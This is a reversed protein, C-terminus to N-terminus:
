RPGEKGTKTATPKPLSKRSTTATTLPAARTSAPSAAVITGARRTTENDRKAAAAPGGGGTMRGLFFACVLLLSLVLAGPVLVRPQRWPAACTTRVEPRPASGNRVATAAGSPRGVRMSFDDPVTGMELSKRIAQAYPTLDMQEPRYRQIPSTGAVERDMCSLLVRSHQSLMRYGSSAKPRVAPPLLRELVAFDSASYDEASVFLRRSQAVAREAQSVLSLLRTVSDQNIRRRPMPASFELPAINGGGNTVWLQPCMLLAEVDGRLQSDWDAWSLVATALALTPRGNEDSAGALVRTLARRGNSLVQTFWCPVHRLSDYFRLSTPQGFSFASSELWRSDETSLGSSRGLTRYGGDSGFIHREVIM